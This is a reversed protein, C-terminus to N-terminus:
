GARLDNLASRDWQIVISQSLPSFARLRGDDISGLLELEQGDRLLQLVEVEIQYETGSKGQITVCHQKPDALRSKVESHSMLKIQELHKGLLELAEDKNFRWSKPDLLMLPILLASFIVGIPLLLVILWAYRKNGFHEFKIPLRM